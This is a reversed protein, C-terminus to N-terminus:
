RGRGRATLRGSPLAPAGLRQGAWGDVTGFRDDTSWSARFQEIEEHSRGVFNWWMVIQEEFPEGGLLMLRAGSRDGSSAMRLSRRGAGLYLLSGIPVPVDAVEIGGGVCIAAYEFDPELDIEIPSRAVASIDLGVLPSHTPGPSREGGFEGLVVRVRAGDVELEPLRDHFNWEPARDRVADPLAVWLQTGDLADPHPTPSQESHSIGHGATMLGLQGPGFVVDSGLSDRHHVSGEFLWSVTQLGTHPHPPVTMGPRRAIDDPGYHDLFCWAGVLRRGLTPLLRRVETGPGLVATRGPILDRVPTASIEARGGRTIVPPEADLNSM